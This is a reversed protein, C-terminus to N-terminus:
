ARHRRSMSASCSRRGIEAEAHRATESFNMAHAQEMWTPVAHALPSVANTPTRSAHDVRPYTYARLPLPNQPCDINGDDPRAPAAPYPGLRQGHARQDIAQVNGLRARLPKRLDAGRGAGRGGDGIIALKQIDGADLRDIDARRRLRRMIRHRAIGEHRALVHEQFLRDRQLKPLGVLQDRMAPLFPSFNVM